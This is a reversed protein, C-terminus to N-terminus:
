KSKLVKMVDAATAMEIVPTDAVGNFYPSIPKYNRAFLNVAKSYGFGRCDNEGSASQGWIVILKKADKATLHMLSSDITVVAAAYKALAIYFLQINEREFFLCGNVGEEEPLKYQVVEYGSKIASEVFKISEKMPWSRLLGQEPQNVLRVREQQPSVPNIGGRRQFLIFNKHQDAFQKAADEINQPIFISPAYDSGKETWDNLRKMGLLERYTDYYNDERLFFKAQQYVEPQYVTWESKNQMIQTFLPVIAARDISKCNDLEMELMDAFYKNVASIYVKDDKHELAFDRIISCQMFEAGSGHNVLILYNM